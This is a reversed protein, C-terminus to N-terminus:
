DWWMPLDRRYPQVESQPPEPDYDQVYEGTGGTDVDAQHDLDYVAKQNRQEGLEVAYDHDRVNESPEIVVNDGDKWGGFYVRGPFRDYLKQHTEYEEQLIRHMLDVDLDKAPVERTKRLGAVQFGHKPSDGGSDVTFGGGPIQRLAEEAALRTVHHPQKDWIYDTIGKM